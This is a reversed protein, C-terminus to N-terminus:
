HLQLSQEIFSTECGRDVIESGKYAVGEGDYVEDRREYHEVASGIRLILM